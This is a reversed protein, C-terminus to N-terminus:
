ADWRVGGFEALVIEVAPVSTKWDKAHVSTDMGCNPELTIGTQEHFKFYKVPETKQYAQRGSYEFPASGQPVIFTGRLALKSAREIVLYEFEGGTYGSTKKDDRDLGTRVRGFPPNSIAHDFLKAGGVGPVVCLASGCVWTAEPVIKRGVEVYAPNLEVCTFRSGHPRGLGKRGRPYAHSEHAMQCHYALSGIGACLDIVDGCNVEVAFDQALGPPTFFAGALGNMHTAGEDWHELVFMKEAHDLSQKKLLECALTHQKAREKTLKSM